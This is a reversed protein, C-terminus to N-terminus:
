PAVGSYPVRKHRGRSDMVDVGYGPILACVRHETWGDAGWVTVRDGIDWRRPPGFAGSTIRGVTAKGM